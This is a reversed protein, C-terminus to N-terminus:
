FDKVVYTPILFTPDIVFIDGSVELEQFKLGSIKFIINWGKLM